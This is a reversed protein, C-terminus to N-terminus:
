GAVVRKGEKVAQWRVIHRSPPQLTTGMNHAAKVTKAKRIAEEHDCGVFKQAQPACM